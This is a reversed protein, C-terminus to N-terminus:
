NILLLVKSPDEPVIEIPKKTLPVDSVNSADEFAENFKSSTISRQMTSHDSSPLHNNPNLPLPRIDQTTVSLDDFCESFGTSMYSENHAYKSTTGASGFNNSTSHGEDIFTAPNLLKHGQLNMSSSGLLKTPIKHSGESDLKVIGPTFICDVDCVLTVWHGSFDTGEHSYESKKVTAGLLYELADTARVGLDGFMDGEADLLCMVLSLVEPDELDPMHDPVM